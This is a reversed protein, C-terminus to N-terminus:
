AGPEDVIEADVVEDDDAPGTGEPSRRGPEGAGGSPGAHPTM